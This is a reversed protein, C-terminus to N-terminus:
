KKNTPEKNKNMTTLEKLEDVLKKMDKDFNMNSYNGGEM